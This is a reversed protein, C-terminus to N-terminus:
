QIPLPVVVPDSQIYGNPVTNLGQDPYIATAVPSPQSQGAGNIRYFATVQAAGSFFSQDLRTYPIEIRHVCRQRPGLIRINQEPFSATDQRVAGTSFTTPPNVIIGLGSTGNDGVIVQNANYLIPITGLSNNWITISIILSGEPTSPISSTRVSLSLPNVAARGILSQHYARNTGLRLWACPTSEDIGPAVSTVLRPLMNPGIFVALLILLFIGVLANPNESRNFYRM